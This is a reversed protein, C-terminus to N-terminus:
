RQSHPVQAKAEPWSRQPEGDEPVRLVQVKSRTPMLWGTTLYWIEGPVFLGQANRSRTEVVRESRGAWSRHPTLSEWLQQREFSRKIGDIDPPPEKL